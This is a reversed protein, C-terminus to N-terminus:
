SQKRNRHSLHACLTAHCCLRHLNYFQGVIPWSLFEIKELGVDVRGKSEVLGTHSM